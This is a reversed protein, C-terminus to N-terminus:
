KRARIEVAWTAKGQSSVQISLGKSKGAYPDISNFEVLKGCPVKKQPGNSFSVTVEAGECIFRATPPGPLVPDFSTRDPSGQGAVGGAEWAPAPGHRTKKLTSQLREISQRAEDEAGRSPAPGSPSAGQSCGTAAILLAGMAALAGRKRM